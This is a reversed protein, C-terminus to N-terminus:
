EKLTFTVTESNSVEGSVEDRILVEARYTGPGWGSTDFQLGLEFETYGERDIIQESTSDKIAVREDTDVDFVRIQHFVNLTGDAIIYDYRWAITIIEGSPASSTSKEMVDGFSDWEEVLQVQQVRPARSAPEVTLEWQADTDRMRYQFTGVFERELTIEDPEWVRSEGGPIELSVEGSESWQGEGPTKVELVTEFTGSQDGTNEITASQQWTEGVTYTGSGSTSVVEFSAPESDSSDGQNENDSEGDTSDDTEDSPGDDTTDDTEDGSGGDEAEGDGNGDGDGGCGALTGVVTLGALALYRRRTQSSSEM